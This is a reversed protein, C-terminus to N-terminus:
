IGEVKSFCSSSGSRAWWDGAQDWSRAPALSSPCSPMWWKMQLSILVDSHGLPFSPGLHEESEVEEALSMFSKGGNPQSLTRKTSPPEVLRVHPLRAEMGSISISRQNPPTMPRGPDASGNERLPSLPPTPLEAMPSKPTLDLNAQSTAQSPPRPIHSESTNNEPQSAGGSRHSLCLRIVSM